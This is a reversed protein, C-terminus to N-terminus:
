KTDLASDPVLTDLIRQDEDSIRSHQIYRDLLTLEELSLERGALDGVSHLARSVYLYRIKPDKIKQADEQILGLHDIRPGGERDLFNHKVRVPPRGGAARDPNKGLPSEGDRPPHIPQRKEEPLNM